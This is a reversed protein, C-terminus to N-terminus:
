YRRGLPASTATPRGLSAAMLASIKGVTRRDSRIMPTRGCNKRDEAGVTRQCTDRRNHLAVDSVSLVRDLGEGDGGSAPDLRGVGDLRELVEGADIVPHLGELEVASDDEVALLLRGLGLIREKPDLLRAASCPSTTTTARAYPEKTGM